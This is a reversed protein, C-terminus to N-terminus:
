EGVMLCLGNNKARSSVSSQRCYYQLPYMLLNCFACAYVAFHERHSLAMREIRTRVISVEWLVPGHVLFSSCLKAKM